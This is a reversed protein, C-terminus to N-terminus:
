SDEQDLLHQNLLIELVVLVLVLAEKIRNLLQLMPKRLLVVLCEVELGLLHQSLLVELYEQCSDEKVRKLLMLNRLLHDVELRRLLHGM